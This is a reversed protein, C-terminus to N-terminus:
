NEYKAIYKLRGCIREAETEMQDIRDVKEEDSLNPNERLRKLHGYYNLIYLEIQHIFSLWDLNTMYTDRFNLSILFMYNLAKHIYPGLAGTALLLKEISNPDYKHQRGGEIEIPYNYERSLARLHDFNSRRRDILTDMSVDFYDAIKILTQIDPERNGNEYNSITARKINLDHALQTQTIGKGDRLIKLVDSFM